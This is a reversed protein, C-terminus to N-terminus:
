AFALFIYTGGTVNINTSANQVIDFGSINPDISDDTTVEAATTNLSLHPDNGAVIGTASSWIFWDGAADTRKILVFRAGTTFGCNITQTAGNGTYSGVKSIGAKTAFLYAVYTNTNGNIVTSTGLSFANATPTTSNWLTDPGQIAFTGSLILSNTNGLTAVYMFWHNAANRNKVLVIEPVVGLGHAETKAVGTGTYCVVDFVGPARKFFHNIYTWGSFNVTGSSGDSELSVGDINFATLSTADSTEANTGDTRGMRKTAGRLRDFFTSYANGQRNKPIVLDPAFGVGTVTAAAGTGTRAIANYVQTGLTPPKNPRRIALYIYTTSAVYGSLRFGTSTPLPINYAVEASSSRADLTAGTGNVNMGRSADSILWDGASSSAKAMVYQPEWGLNVTANGSADTTFSGCQVIGDASSDHAFLYAVYTIGNSNNWYPNNGLKVVTATHDTAEGFVNNNPDDSFAATTNLWGYKDSGAGRHWVSWEMNDGTASTAKTVIMGPAIGLAHPIQRGVVGNGTYTVVDFFKPAKRFTWSAYTTALQNVGLNSVDSGLSFGNSNVQYVTFNDFSNSASSNTKLRNLVGRNTDILYHDQASSRSKIWVLGGKGALDIGNNIPQLSGNGIYTHASFVSDVYLKEGKSDASTLLSLENM